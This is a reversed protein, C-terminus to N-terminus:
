RSSTASGPQSWGSNTAPDLLEAILVATLVPDLRIGTVPNTRLTRELM